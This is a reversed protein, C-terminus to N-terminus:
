CQKEGIHNHNELKVITLISEGNASALPREQHRNIFQKYPLVHAIELAAGYARKYAYFNGPNTFEAAIFEFGREVAIRHLDQNLLHPIRAGYYKKDVAVLGACLVAGPRLLMRDRLPQNLADFFEAYDRMCPPVADAPMDTLFDHAISVGALGSEEDRAVMALRQRISERLYYEAYVAFDQETLKLYNALPDLEIFSKVTLAHMQQYDSEDALSVKIEM